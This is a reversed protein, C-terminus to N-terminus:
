AEPSPFRIRQVLTRYFKERFAIEVAAFQTQQNFLKEPAKDEASLQWIRDGLLGETLPPEIQKDTKIQAARNLLDDVLGRYVQVAEVEESAM